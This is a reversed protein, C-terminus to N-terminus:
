QLLQLAMRPPKRHLHRLASMQPLVGGKEGYAYRRFDAGLDLGSYAELEQRLVETTVTRHMFKAVWHRLFGVLDLTPNLGVSKQEFLGLLNLGQGYGHGDNRSYYPSHAAMNLPVLSEPRSVHRLDSHSAMAEDIWGANGNEPLVGRGFYLHNMEHTAVTVHTVAAGSYEMGYSLDEDTFLILSEHPYPGYKEQLARLATLSIDRLKVLDERSGKKQYAVGPVAKGQGGDFEFVLKEISDKPLVHLYVSSANFYAPFEVAWHNPGIERVSGNAFLEHAQAAGRIELSLAMKYQSYEGTTPLYNQLYEGGDDFMFFASNVIGDGFAPPNFKATMEHKVVLTHKGIETRKRVVRVPNADASPVAEIETVPEGDLSLEEVPDTLAFVPLGAAPMSFRLTSEVRTKRNSIDYIVRYDAAEIFIYVAPEASGPVQFPPPAEAALVSLSSFLFLLASIRFNM